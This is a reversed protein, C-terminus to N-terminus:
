EFRGKVEIITATNEDKPIIINTVEFCNWKKEYQTYYEANGSAIIKNNCKIAIFSKGMVKLLDTVIM